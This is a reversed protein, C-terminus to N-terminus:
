TDRVREAFLPEFRKQALGHRMRAMPVRHMREVGSAEFAMLPSAPVVVTSDGTRRSKTRVRGASLVRCGLPLAATTDIVREIEDLAEQVQSHRYSSSPADSEDDDREETPPLVEAM